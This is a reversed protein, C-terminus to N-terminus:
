PLRNSGTIERLRRDIYLKVLSEIFAQGNDESHKPFHLHVWIKHKEDFKKLRVWEDDQEMEYQTEGLKVYEM